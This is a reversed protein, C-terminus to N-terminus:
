LWHPRNMSNMADYPKHHMGLAPHYAGPQGYTGPPPGHAGPAGLALNQLMENRILQQHIPDLQNMFQYPSPRTSPHPLFQHYAPAAPPAVASTSSPTSTSKNSGDSVSPAGPGRQSTSLYPYPNNRLDELYPTNEGFLSSPYGAPGSGYNFASGHVVNATKLSIASSEQNSSSNSGTNSSSSFSGAVQNASNSSQTTKMGSYTQFGQHAANPQPQQHQQQQHQHVQQQQHQMHQQQQHAQQQQQHHHQAEVPEKKKRSRKPKAPEPAAPTVNPVSPINLPVKQSQGHMDNRSHYNGGYTSQQQDRTATYAMSTAMSPNFMQQLTSTASASGLGSGAATPLNSLNKGFMHAAPPLNKEYFGSQGSSGTLMKDDASYLSTLTALNRLTPDILSSSTAGTFSKYTTTLDINGQQQQQQQQHPQQQGAALASRQDYRPLQPNQINQSASNQTPKPQQQQQMSYTNAGSMDHAKNTNPQMQEYSSSGHGSYGMKGADAQGQVASVAAGTGSPFDRPFTMTAARNFMDFAKSKSIDMPNGYGMASIIDMMQQQKTLEKEKSGVIDGTAAADKNGMNMPIDQQQQQQQQQQNKVSETSATSNYGLNILEPVKTAAAAASKSLDHHSHSQTQSPQLQQHGGHDYAQRTYNSAYPNQGLLNSLHSTSHQHQQHHLHQQSQQQQQQQQQQQPIQQQQQQQATSQSHAPTINNPNQSSHQPNAAQQQCSPPQQQQQQQLMHPQQVNHHAPLPKQQSLLNNQPLNQQQQHSPHIHAPAPLNTGLGLSNEPHATYQNYGPQPQPQQNWPSQTSIQPPILPPQQIQQQQPLQSGTNQMASAQQPQQQQQQQQQPSSQQSQQQSLNHVPSEPTLTVGAAAAAQQPTIIPPALKLSNNTTGQPLVSISSQQSPKPSMPQFPSLQGQSYPSNPDQQSYPSSHNSQSFPSNPSQHIPTNPKSSLQQPPAQQSSKQTPATAQNQSQHQPTQYPSSPSPNFPSHGSATSQAPSQQVSSQPAISNNSYPSLPGSSAPSPITQQQNFNQNQQQQYPSNPQQQYPSSQQNHYPSNPNTSPSMSSNYDSEQSAPQKYQEYGKLNDTTNSSTANNSGNSGYPYNGYLNTASVGTSGTYLHQSYQPYPSPLDRPSCSKEPSSKTTTDQYFGVRITGNNLPYPSKQTEDLKPSTMIPSAGMPSPYPAPYVGIREDIGIRPSDPDQSYSSRESVTSGTSAKRQRPAPLSPYNPSELSPVMSTGLGSESPSANEGGKGSDTPSNKCAADEAEDTKKPKKPAGFAKFWASLNPTASPKDSKTVAKVVKEPSEIVKGPETKAMEAKAAKLDDHILLKDSNGSEDKSSGVSQNLDEVDATKVVEEEVIDKKEDAFNHQQCLGFGETDLVTGLSLKPKSEDTKVILSNKVEKVKNQNAGLPFLEEPKNLNQILNGKAKGPQMRDITRHVTERKRSGLQSLKEKLSKRKPEKPEKKQSHPPIIPPPGLLPREVYPPVVTSGSVAPQPQVKVPNPTVTTVNTTAIEKPPGPEPINEKATKIKVPEKHPIVPSPLAVAKPSTPIPDIPAPVTTTLPAPAVLPAPSIIPPETEPESLQTLPIPKRFDAADIKATVADLDDMIYRSPSNSASSYESFRPTNELWKNIDKLTQETELELAELNAGVPKSHQKGATSTNPKAPASHSSKSSKTASKKNSDSKSKSQKPPKEVVAPPIPTAAKPTPIDPPSDDVFDYEDSRDVKKMTERNESTEEQYSLRSKETVLHQETVKSNHDEEDEGLELEDPPPPSPSDNRLESSVVQKKKGKSLDKSREPSKGVDKAKSLEKGVNSTDAESSQKSKQKKRTNDVNKETKRKSPKEPSIAALQGSVPQFANTQNRRRQKILDYKDVIDPTIPRAPALKPPERDVIADNDSNMSHDSMSSYHDRISPLPSPSRSFSRSSSRDRPLTTYKSFDKPQKKSASPIEKHQPKKNKNGKRVEIPTEEDESSSVISSTEFSKNKSKKSKANKSKSKSKKSKGEDKSRAKSKGGKHNNKKSKKEKRDDKPEDVFDGDPSSGAGEEPIRIDEIDAFNDLDTEEGDGTRKDEVVKAPTPRDHKSRHGKRKSKPKVPSPSASTISSDLYKSSKKSSKVMPKEAYNDEKRDKKSHKSKLATPEKHKDAKKLASSPAPSASRMDEPSPSRSRSISRSRKSKKGTELKSSKKEEKPNKSNKSKSIDKEEKHKQKSASKKKVDLEVLREDKREYEEEDKKILQVSKDEDDEDEDVIEDEDESENRKVKKSKRKDSKDKEKRKRKLGKANASKSTKTDEVEVTKGKKASGVSNSNENNQKKSDSSVEGLGNKTKKGNKKKGSASKPEEPIEVDRSSASKKESSAKTKSTSSSKSEKSSHKNGGGESSGISASASTNNNQIENVTKSTGATNGFSKEKFVPYELTTEEDSSNSDFYKKTAKEFAIQLNNVMETYENAQGNYLRCNNVILKFDNRFDAFSLYEGDDLKEEMKQLDMPRRIISYYRPAIDEDVPDMFPWADDHNKISELVKHMGIQLVEESETFSFSTFLTSTTTTIFVDSAKNKKKRGGNGGGGGGGGTSASSEKGTSVTEVSKVNASNSAKAPPPETIPLIVPETVSSLSNNTQRGPLKTTTPAMNRNYQLLGEIEASLSKYSRKSKKKTILLDKENAERASPFPEPTPPAVSVIDPDEEKSPSVPPETRKRSSIGSSTTDSSAVSIARSFAKNVSVSKKKLLKDLRVSNTQVHPEDCDEDPDPEEPDQKSSGGSSSSHVLIDATTTQESGLESSPSAPSHYKNNNTFKPDITDLVSHKSNSHKNFTNAVLNESTKQQFIFDSTFPEPSSAYTSVISTVSNSRSRREARKARAEALRARTAEVSEKALHAENLPAAARKEKIQERLLAKKTEEIEQQRYHDALRREEYVKIRSSTRRELLRNRREREKDRFIKPINPLFNEVLQLHLAREDENRTKNFKSALNHWDEETFCIVQWISGQKSSSKNGKGTAAVDYDERYLRTGFFYWYASGKSDYGLPEVRLSDAELNALKFLVDASDLRFDCLYKLILIKTRLPLKEFDTDENFPNDINHEQCKQRFLRRLFMQYNSPSIHSVIQSLTDCGKLIAVILDPLLRANYVKLDVESETDADTLLAEELDEIDFDPLQFSGSFLSCFHAICPVEWWSQIDIFNM